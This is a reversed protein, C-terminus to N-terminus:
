KASDLQKQYGAAGQTDGERKLQDILLGLYQKYKANDGKAQEIGVMSEYVMSNLYIKPVNTFVENMIREADDYKKDASYDSALLVHQVMYSQYDKSKLTAQRAPATDKEFDGVSISAPPSNEGSKFFHKYGLWGGYAIAAIITLLVFLKIFGKLGKGRGPMSLRM